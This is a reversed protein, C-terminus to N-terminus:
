LRKDRILGRLESRDDVLLNEIKDLRGLINDLDKNTEAEEIETGVKVFVEQSATLLETAKEESSDILEQASEIGIDKRLQTRSPIAKDIDEQSIAAEIQETVEEIQETVEEPPEPPPGEGPEEELAERLTGGYTVPTKDETGKDYSEDLWGDSAYSNMWGKLSGHPDKLNNIADKLTDEDTFDDDALNGYIWDVIQYPM